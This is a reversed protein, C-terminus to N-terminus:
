MPTAVALSMASLNIASPTAGSMGTATSSFPVSSPARASLVNSASRPAITARSATWLGAIMTTPSTTSRLSASSLSARQARIASVTAHLEEGAVIELGARHRPPGAAVPRDMDLVGDIDALFAIRDGRGLFACAADVAGDDDIGLRGGFPRAGRM